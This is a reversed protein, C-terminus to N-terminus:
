STINSLFDLFSIAANHRAQWYVIDLDKTDKSALKQMATEAEVERYWTIYKYWEEHQVAIIAAKQNDFFRGQDDSALRMM